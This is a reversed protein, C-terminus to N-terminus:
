CRRFLDRRKLGNAKIQYRWGIEAMIKYIIRPFNPSTFLNEGSELGEISKALERLAGSSNKKPGNGPPVSTLGLMMGGGGIGVGRGWRLHSKVCWCKMMELAHRNQVGEYFGCNVIAYVVPHFDSEKFFNELSVLYRLFHSPIGDVYLPFAFVLVDQKALEDPGPCVPLEVAHLGYEIVAHNALLGKLEGLILGSSSNKVKPSANIMAIRM